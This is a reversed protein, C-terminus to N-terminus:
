IHTHANRKCFLCATKVSLLNKAGEGGNILSKPPGLSNVEKWGSCLSLLKSFTHLHFSEFAPPGELEREKVTSQITLLQGMVAWVSDCKYESSLSFHNEFETYLKPAWVGRKIEVLPFAKSNDVARSLGNSRHELLFSPTTKVWQSCWADKSPFLLPLYWM